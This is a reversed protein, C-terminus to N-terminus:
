EGIKVRSSKFDAAAFATVTGLTALTPSPTGNSPHTHSTILALKSNIANVMANLKTELKTAMVAADANGNVSVEEVGTFSIKLKDAEAAGFDVTIGGAGKKIVLMEIEDCEDLVRNEEQEVYKITCRSKVKPVIYIGKDSGFARLGVDAYTLKNESEDNADPLVTCTLSSKDVSVVTGYIITEPADIYRKSEQLMSVMKDIPKDRTTENNNM